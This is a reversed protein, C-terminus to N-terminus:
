DDAADSTYLLCYIAKMPLNNKHEEIKQKRAERKEIADNWEFNNLVEEAKAKEEKTAREEYNIRWTSKDDLRGFSIGYIPCVAQIKEQIVAELRM